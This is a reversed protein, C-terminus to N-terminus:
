RPQAVTIDAEPAAVPIKGLGAAPEPTPVGGTRLGVAQQMEVPPATPLPAGPYIPPKPPVM